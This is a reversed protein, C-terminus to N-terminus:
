LEYKSICLVHLHRGSTSYVHHLANERKEWYKNNTKMSREVGNRESEKSKTKNDILLICKNQNKVIPLM